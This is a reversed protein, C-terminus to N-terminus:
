YNSMSVMLIAAELNGETMILARLNYPTNMLGMEQMIRLENAYRQAEPRTAIAAGGVPPPMFLRQSAAAAAQSTSATPSQEPFLMRAQTRRANTMASLLQERSIVSSSAAPPSAESESSTSDSHSSDDNPQAVPAPPPMENLLQKVFTAIELLIPYKQIINDLNEENQLSTILVPDRLISYAGLNDYFEPYATYVRRLVDPRTIRSYQACVKRAEEDSLKPEVVVNKIPKRAPLVFVTCGTQAGMGALTVDDDLSRGEWILVLKEEPYGLAELFKNDRLDGVKSNFDIGTVLTRSNNSPLCAKLYVKDSM